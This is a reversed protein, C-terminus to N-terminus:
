REGELLYWVVGTKHDRNKIKIVCGARNLEHIRASYRLALGSLEANSAPGIRLRDLIAQCQRGLRPAEEKTVKPDAPSTPTEFEWIRGQKM